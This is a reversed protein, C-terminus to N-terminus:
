SANWCFGASLVFKGAEVREEAAIAMEQIVFVCEQLIRSWKTPNSDVDAFIDARREGSFRVCRHLELFALYRVFPSNDRTLGTVLHANPDPKGESAAIAEGFDRDFIRDAAEWCSVAFTGSVFLAFLFRLDLLPEWTSHDYRLSSSFTPSINALTENRM